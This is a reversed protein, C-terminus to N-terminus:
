KGIQNRYPLHIEKLTGGSVVISVPAGEVVRDDKIGKHSVGERPGIFQTEDDVKYATRKGGVEVTISKHEADVKVIIGQVRNGNDMSPAKKTGTQPRTAGEDDTPEARTRRAASPVPKTKVPKEDDATPASGTPGYGASRSKSATKVIHVEKAWRNNSTLVIRLETGPMFRKDALRDEVAGDRQGLFKTEKSVFVTQTASDTKVTITQMTVDVKVVTGELVSGQKTPTDALAITCGCL